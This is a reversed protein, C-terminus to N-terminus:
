LVLKIIESPHSVIHTAGEDSLETQDGYGWLVGISDIGLAKAAEVDHRRDGIMVVSSADVVGLEKLARALTVEKKVTEGPREAAVYEFYDALNTVKLAENAIYDVKSTVVALRVGGVHLAELLEKTGDYATTLQVGDRQMKQRYYGVAEQAKEDSFGYYDKFSHELPPGVFRRLNSEDTEHIGMMELAYKASETLANGPNSLTGDIDFIAVSYTM